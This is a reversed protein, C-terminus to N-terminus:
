ERRAHQPEEPVRLALDGLAPDDRGGVTHHLADHGPLVSAGADRDEHARQVDVDVARGEGARHRRDLVDGTPENRREVLLALVVLADDPVEVGLETVDLHDLDGARDGATDNGVDRLTRLDLLALPDTQDPEARADVDVEGLTDLHVHLDTLLGHSPHSSNVTISGSVCARLPQTGSASSASSSSIGRERRREIASVRVRPLAVQPKMATYKVVVPMRIGCRVPLWSVPMARCLAAVATMRMSHAATKSRKSPRTARLSREEGM